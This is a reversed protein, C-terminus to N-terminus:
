QREDTNFQLQLLERGPTLPGAVQAWLIICILQAIKEVLIDINSLLNKCHVITLIKPTSM